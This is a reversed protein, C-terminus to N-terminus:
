FSENDTARIKWVPFYEISFTEYSTYSVVLDYGGNPVVMRFEGEANSITGMTTNQCFVSAGALPLGTSQDTVKGHILYENRQSYSQLALSLVFFLCMWNRM